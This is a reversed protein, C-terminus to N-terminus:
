TVAETFIPDPKTMDITGAKDYIEELISKLFNLNYDLDEEDLIINIDYDLTLIINNQKFEVSTINKQIGSKKYAENVNAYMELKGLETDAIYTKQKINDDFSIGFVYLEYDTKESVQLHELIMGTSTLRVYKDTEKNYAFYKSTHETIIVQLTDPLKRKISVGAIYPLKSLNNEVEKKSIKYINEGIIIKSTQLLTEDDYITSNKFEVKAVNYKSSTSFYYIGYGILFLLSLVFTVLVIYVLVRLVKKKHKGKNKISKENNKM